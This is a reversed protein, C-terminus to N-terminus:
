VNLTQPTLAQVAEFLKQVRAELEVVRLTLNRDAEDGFVFKAALNQEPLQEIIYRLQSWSVEFGMAEALLKAAESKTAAVIPSRLARVYDVIAVRQSFPMRDKSPKDSEAPSEPADPEIGPLNSM